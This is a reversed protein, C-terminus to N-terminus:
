PAIDYGEDGPLLFEQVGGEGAAKPVVPALDATETAAILEDVSHFEAMRRLHQETAFVLPFEGAEFRSLAEGPSIWVSATTEARDHIPMQREPSVAVFFRTDFRRPFQVPTIWRSFPHLADGLYRLHEERSIDILTVTGAHLQRRYRDFREASQGLLNLASGDDHRALLVGAEEFLERIAAARLAKWEPEDLPDGSPLPHADMLSLLEPDRDPADVKGGPFVFVDAAFDSKIHRRVMFTQWPEGVPVGDRVLIVTAADVPRVPETM